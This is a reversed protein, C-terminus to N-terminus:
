LFKLSDLGKFIDAKLKIHNKSLIMYTSSPAFPVNKLNKDHCDLMLEECKCEKPFEHM